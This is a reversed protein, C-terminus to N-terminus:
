NASGDRYVQNFVQYVKEVDEAATIARYNMGILEERSYGLHRCLPKM